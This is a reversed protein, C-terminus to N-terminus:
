HDIEIREGGHDVERPGDQELPSRRRGARDQDREREVQQQHHDTQSHKTSELRGEGLPQSMSGAPRATAAVLVKEDGDSRAGSNSQNVRRSRSRGSALDTPSPGTEKSRSGPSHSPTIPRLPAALVVSRRTNAPM